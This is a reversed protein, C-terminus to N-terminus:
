NPNVEMYARDHIPRSDHVTLDPIVFVTAKLSRALELLKEADQDADIDGYWFRGATHTYLGVHVLTSHSIVCRGQAGFRECAQAAAEEVVQTDWFM